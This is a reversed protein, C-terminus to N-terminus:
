LKVMKKTAVVKGDIVLSYTYIGSSLDDGFVQVEGNGSETIELTKILLGSADHFILSAENASTPISYTILTSEAFPNPANQNLVIKNELNVKLRNAIATQVEADNMQVSSHNIECLQPLINSLCAELQSLRANLDELEKKNNEQAVKLDQIESEQATIQENKRQLNALMLPILQTYEVGKLDMSEAIITGTSDLKAPHHVTHVMDPFVQELQQALVGYQQGAPLNLRAAAGEQKYGYTYPKISMLLADTEADIPTINQKMTSDSIFVSPGNTVVTGAFYGAYNNAGPNQVEGYVGYNNIGGGALGVVGFNEQGEVHISHNEGLVGINQEGHGYSQFVGGFGFTGANQTQDVAIGKAGINSKSNRAEFWGGYNINANDDDITSFFGFNTEGAQPSNKLLTRVGINIDGNAAAFDGGIMTPRLNINQLETAQGYVGTYTKSSANTVDTNIGSIATSHDNVEVPHAQRVSVKAPLVEGCDYGFGTHNLGFEDNNEFYLQNNNLNVKSFTTLDGAGSNDNCDVFGGGAVPAMPGWTGDGLLVENTSGSFALRSLEVDDNSSGNQLGLILSQGGQAPVERFRANGNVDLVESVSTLGNFPTLGIGVFRDESGPMMSNYPRIYLDGSNSVQFDAHVGADVVNTPTTFSTLRMQAGTGFAAGQDFVELRRNPARTNDFSPGVGVHQNGSNMHMIEVGEAGSGVASPVAQSSTFVFRLNDAGTSGSPNDGWNVIADKRDNGEDKLGIYLQDTNYMMLMGQTMWTRYGGGQGGGGPLDEGLHIPSFPAQTGIGLFGSTNVIQTPLNPPANTADGNLVMRFTANTYHYVPSNWFTGFKNHPGQATATNNPGLNGGRYWASKALTNVVDTNPPSGYPPAQSFVTVQVFLLIMLTLFLNRKMM